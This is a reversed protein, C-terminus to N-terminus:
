RPQVQEDLARGTAEDTQEYRRAAETLQHGLDDSISAVRTGAGRRAAVIESVADATATAIAGHTTRVAADVGETVLTAARTAAAARVQQGALEDLHTTAVRLDDGSM